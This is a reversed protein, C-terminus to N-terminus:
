ARGVPYLGTALEDSEELPLEDPLSEPDDLLPELSLAPLQRLGPDPSDADDDLSEDFLAQRRQAEGGSREM